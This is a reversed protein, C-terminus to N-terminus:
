YMKICTSEYLSSLNQTKYGKFTGLFWENFQIKHSECFNGWDERPIRLTGWNSEGQVGGGSLFGVFSTTLFFGVSLEKREM